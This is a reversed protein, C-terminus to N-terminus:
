ASAARGKFRPVFEESVFAEYSTSTTNQPSRDELARMHGSNLAATMEVLLDAVNASIGNQKLFTRFQEDSIQVYALNPRNIAKGIILTADAMSLDRQGLLERTTQGKYDLRLLREASVAGIDRTAIMPVKLDPRLTGGAAGSTKIASIQALTNEMFYGARLHLVNLGRIGNLRRELYHLGQVPGNKEAKDAGISSLTVVHKVDCRELASAISDTIQNQYAPYDQSKMNPPIMAYVAKAGSFAKALATPDTLDCIVAEAGEATLSRLHDANRGIARVKEGRALLISAVQRGTNGTAGTIVYM